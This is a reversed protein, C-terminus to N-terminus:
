KFSALVKRFSANIKILSCWNHENVRSDVRHESMLYITQWQITISYQKLNEYESATFVEEPDGLELFYYHDLPM